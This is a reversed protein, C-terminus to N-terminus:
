RCRAPRAPEPQPRRSRGPPPSGAPPSRRRAGRPRAGRRATRASTTAYLVERVLDNAFEYERGAEVLLRAALGEECRALVAPLPEDLLRAVVAPDFGSGLVSGARPMDEVRPGARHVRALVADQLSRPVGPEGAGLAQLTEVVFLPHGMTRQHISGALGGQGVAEALRAVAEPALMPLDLREAAEALLAFVDRGEETRVTAVVLVRAAACHRTLYHLLQVTERGATHLDDLVLLVPGREALRRVFGTLAEFARRREIQVVRRGSPADVGLVTAADPVLGALVAADPGAAVTTVDPPLSRIAAGVADVMPQLFLSREAEHCRARLATGGTSAAITALEVALRTKGIGAEGTLLVLSGTGAAVANWHTRLRRLEEARGVFGLSEAAPALQRRRPARDPPPEERLLRLHLERTQPAPDVGLERALLDRLEAYAALARAPQGLAEWAQMLQRTAVEDYPDDGLAADAAQSAATADGAALASAALAHRADRRLSSLRERAIDAWGAALEDELAPGDGLLDVARKAAVVALAAEGADLRDRAARVLREAADLDLEVAPPRGLSYGEERGGEVAGAALVRRLRNVLTAVNEAPGRPMPEDAWLMAALDTTSRVHRPEVALIKLLLRAKRSGLDARAMPAGERLVAFPGALRVVIQAGDNAAM